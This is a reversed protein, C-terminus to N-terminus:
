WMVQNADDWHGVRVRTDVAFRYGHKRAEACFYLDQTAAQMGKGPVFSQLTRFWPKVMKKFMALRWLAFGMGIGNCEQVTEPIPVQPIFDQPMNKPDGYIMAAGTEGKVFYLGSIADYKDISEYLRLLGDPPPANDDELTLLYKWKSLEPHALITEIAQNYADGVELKEMFFRTFKQNMPTALSLWAQVVKAAILGRTPIVCVTSLDRYSNGRILRDRVQTIDANPAHTM